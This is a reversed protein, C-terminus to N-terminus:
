QGGTKPAGAPPSYDIEEPMEVPTPSPLPRDDEYIGAAGALESATASLPNRLKDPDLDIVGGNAAYVRVTRTGDAATIVAVGKVRPNDVFFRSQTSNGFGDRGATTESGDTHFTRTTRGDESIEIRTGDELQRVTGAVPESQVAADPEFVVEEVAKEKKPSRLPGLLFGAGLVSVVIAGLLLKQFM